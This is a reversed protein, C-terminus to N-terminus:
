LILFGRSDETYGEETYGEETYGEETYGEKTYGEEPSGKEPSGEEPGAVPFFDQVQVDEVEAHSPGRSLWTILRSVAEPHGVMLVEVRGDNLNKAYGQIGLKIAESCTSARYSVGQVKGSVWAKKSVRDM